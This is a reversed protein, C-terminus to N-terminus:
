PTPRKGISNDFIHLRYIVVSKLHPRADQDLWYANEHLTLPVLEGHEPLAQLDVGFQHIALPRHHRRIQRLAASSVWITPPAEGFWLRLRAPLETLTVLDHTSERM